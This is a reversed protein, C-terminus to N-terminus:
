LLVVLFWTQTNMLESSAPDEAGEPDETRETQQETEAGNTGSLKTLTTNSALRSTM